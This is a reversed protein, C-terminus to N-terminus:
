LVGKYVIASADIGIDKRIENMLALVYVRVTSWVYSENGKAVKILYDFLQDQKDMIDQPAMMGIYGYVRIRARNLESFRDASIPKGTQLVADYDGLIEALIDVMFRYSQIKDHFGKLHKEKIINIENKFDELYLQNSKELKSQLEALHVANVQRETEMLRDAWVKGLWNSLGFFMAGATGVSAIISLTIDLIQTLTM